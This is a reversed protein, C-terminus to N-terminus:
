SNVGLRELARRGLDLAAFSFDVTSAIIRATWLDHSVRDRLSDAAVPSQPDELSMPQEGRRCIGYANDLSAELEAGFLVLAADDFLGGKAPHKESM